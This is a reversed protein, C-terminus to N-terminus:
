RIQKMQSVVIFNKVKAVM